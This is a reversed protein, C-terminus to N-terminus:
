GHYEKERQNEIDRLPKISNRVMMRQVAANPRTRM